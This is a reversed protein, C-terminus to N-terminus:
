GVAELVARASPQELTKGVEQLAKEVTDPTGSVDPWERPPVWLALFSVVLQWMRTDHWGDLSRKPFGLTEDVGNQM